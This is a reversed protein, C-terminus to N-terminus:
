KVLNNVNFLSTAHSEERPNKYSITTINKPNNADHIRMESVFPYKVGKLVVSNGYKFEAVKFLEGSVTLFEAKVALKDKKSIWYKIRDYTVNKAKAKLDLMWNSGDDKQAMPEYDRAYQTSAIDGNAAQGMLKQRPSISIPKKLGPKFFWLTRDNFLAIEGKQRPPSITEAIADNGRIKVAYGAASEEGNETSVINSNWSVGELAAAAGRSRDSIKLLEVANVGQAAPATAKKAPAALAGASLLLIGMMQMM